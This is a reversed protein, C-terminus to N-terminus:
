GPHLAVCESKMRGFDDAQGERGVALDQERGVLVPDQAEPVRVTLALRSTPGREATRLNQKARPSFIAYFRSTPVKRIPPCSRGNQASESETVQVPAASQESRVCM